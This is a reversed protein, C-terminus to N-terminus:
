LNFNKISNVIIDSFEQNNWVYHPANKLMVFKKLNKDNSFLKQEKLNYKDREINNGQTKFIITPVYLKSDYYKIRDQCLRYGILKPEM